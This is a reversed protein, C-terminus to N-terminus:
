VDVDGRKSGATMIALLLRMQLLSASPATVPDEVVQKGHGSMIKEFLDIPCKFAECLKANTAVVSDVTVCPTGYHPTVVALEHRVNNKDAVIFIDNKMEDEKLTSFLGRQSLAM